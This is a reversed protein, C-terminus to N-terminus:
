VPHETLELGYLTQSPGQLSRRWVIRAPEEAQAGDPTLGVTVLIKEGEAIELCSILCLGIRSLNESRTLEEGGNALRVRVPVKVTLRKSRRRETQPAPSPKQTARAPDPGMGPTAETRAFSLGWPRVAACKACFRSLSGEKVVGRYQELTLAILEVFGCAACEMLADVSEQPEGTKGKSPFAIGWFNDDPQLCEVGWEVGQGLSKEIRGVVRFPCSKQSHLNTVSLRSNPSPCGKLSIRAGNRNIVLTFTKELFPKGDAGTGSVEIPIRLLVRESRRGLERHPSPREGEM